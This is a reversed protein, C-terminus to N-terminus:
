SIYDQEDKVKKEKIEVMKEAVQDNKLKAESAVKQLIKSHVIQSKSMKELIAKLRKDSLAQAEEDKMQRWEELMRIREKYEEERERMEKRRAEEMEIQKKVTM